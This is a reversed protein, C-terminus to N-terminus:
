SFTRRPMPTTPALNTANSEFAIFRGDAFISNDGSGFTGPFTAQAGNPGVSVRTTTSTLRDHVFVGGGNLTQRTLTFSGAAGASQGAFRHRARRSHFDPRGPTPFRRLGAIRQVPQRCCEDM